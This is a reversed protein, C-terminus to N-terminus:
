LISCRRITRTSWCNWPSAGCNSLANTTSASRAMRDVVLLGDESSEITTQLLSFARAQELELQKRRTIDVMVGRLTVPRGQDMIVTVFDALWVERGDAALM